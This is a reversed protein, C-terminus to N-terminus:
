RSKKDDGSLKKRLKSIREVKKEIRKKRAM